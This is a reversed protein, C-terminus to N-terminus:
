PKPLDNLTYGVKNRLKTALNLRDEQHLVHGSEIYEQSFATADVENQVLREVEVLNIREEPLAKSLAQRLKAEFGECTIGIWTAHKITDTYFFEKMIIEIIEDSTKM